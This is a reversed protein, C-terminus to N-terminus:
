WESKGSWKAFFFKMEPVDIIVPNKGPLYLEKLEKRWEFKSMTM